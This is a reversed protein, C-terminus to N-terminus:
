LKGQLPAGCWLLAAPPRPSNVGGWWGGCREEAGPGGSVGKQEETGGRTVQGARDPRMSCAASRTGRLELSKPAVSSAESWNMLSGRRCGWFTKFVEKALLSMCQ